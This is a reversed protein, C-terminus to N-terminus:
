SAAKLVIRAADAILTDDYDADRDTKSSLIAISIPQGAPPYVIAIDNRTGYAGGGTKDGAQWGQPLHGLRYPVKLDREATTTLGAAITAVQKRSMSPGGYSPLFTAWSDDAWQWALAAVTQKKTDDAPSGYTWDRGIADRGGVTVPYQDGITLTADGAGGFTSTDYVDKGYVTITAVTLPFKEGLDNEWTSGDHYVPLETYGETVTTAPGIQYAGVRYEGLNTRFDIKKVPLPADIPAAPPPSFSAAPATPQGAPM